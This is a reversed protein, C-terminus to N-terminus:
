FGEARLRQAPEVGAARVMTSVVSAQTCIRWAPLRVLQLRPPLAGKNQRVASAAVNSM